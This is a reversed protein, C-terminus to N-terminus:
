QRLRLADAAEEDGIIAIPEDDRPDGRAYKRPGFVHLVVKRIDPPRATERPAPLVALLKTLQDAMKGVDGVGVQIQASIRACVVLAADEAVTLREPYQERLKAEAEKARERIQERLPAALQPDLRPRTVV